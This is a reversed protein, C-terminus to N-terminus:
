DEEMPQANWRALGEYLNKLGEPPIWPVQKAIQIAKNNALNVTFIITLNRSYPVVIPLDWSEAGGGELRFPMNTKNFRSGQLINFNTQPNVATISTVTIASRGLNRATVRFRAGDPTIGSWDVEATVRPGSRWWTIVQWLLATVGTVGGVVGIILGIVTQNEERRGFIPLVAKTAM